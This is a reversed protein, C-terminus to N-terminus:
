AVTEVTLVADKVGTVKVRAGNPLDPGEVRWVTDDARVSGRGNVIPQELFLVRDILQEARRNLRRDDTAIPHRRVYARGAATVAVALVAFAVFQVQWGAAPWVLALLGTLGAAIGLWLFFAGPALVELLGLAIGAIWWHWFVIEGLWNM